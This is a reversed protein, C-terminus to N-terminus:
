LERTYGPVREFGQTALPVTIRNLNSKTNAYITTYEDHDAFIAFSKPNPVFLFDMWDSLAALLLERSEEANSAAVSTGKGYNPALSYRALISIWHKPEFVAQDITICVTQLPYTSLICNVFPPLNRLPTKFTQQFRWAAKRFKKVAGADDCLEM